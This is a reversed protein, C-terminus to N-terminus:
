AIAKGGYPPRGHRRVVVPAMSAGLQYRTGCTRCIEQGAVRVTEDVPCRVQLEEGDIECVRSTPPYILAHTPCYPVNPPYIPTGDAALQAPEPTPDDIRVKGRRTTMRIYIWYLALLSLGPGVVGLILLIPLLGILGNWDPVIITQLWNLFATWPDVPQPPM